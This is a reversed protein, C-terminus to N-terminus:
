VAIQATIEASPPCTVTIGTSVVDVPDFGMHPDYGLVLHIVPHGRVDFIYLIIIYYTHIYAKITENM